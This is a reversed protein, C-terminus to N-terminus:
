PFVTYTRIIRIIRIYMRAIKKSDRYKRYAVMRNIITNSVAGFTETNDNTLSVIVGCRFKKPIKTVIVVLRYFSTSVIFGHFAFRVGRPWSIGPVIWCYPSRNLLFYKLSLVLKLYDIQSPM